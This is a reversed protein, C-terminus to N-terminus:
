LQVPRVFARLMDKDAISDYLSIAGDAEVASAAFAIDTDGAPEDDPPAILPEECRAVVSTFYPDFAIWGIRWKVERTAGNYFMVRHDPDSALALVPGTSLHWSDWHDARADLLPDCLSWPGDVHPAAALGIKSAGGAAYEFFLRWTGNTCGVMTAEKPNEHQPAWPLAIGRKALRNPTPGSALLLQGRKAAENWGTYYVYYTDHVIALTPDECGDIDEDGPGPAIVPEGGMKFHIGNASEGYYIRAIKKAPNESHPVARLLLRYQDSERWVFPSLTYMDALPSAREMTLSTIQGVTFNM